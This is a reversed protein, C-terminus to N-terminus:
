GLRERADDDGHERVYQRMKLEVNCAYDWDANETGSREYNNHEYGDDVAEMSIEDMWHEAIYDTIKERLDSLDDSDAMMEVFEEMPISISCSGSNKVSYSCSGVEDERGTIDFMIGRHPQAPAGPVNARVVGKPAAKVITTEIWEKISEYTVHESPIPVKIHALVVARVTENHPAAQLLQVVSAPLAQQIICTRPKAEKAPESVLEGTLTKMEEIAANIGQDM